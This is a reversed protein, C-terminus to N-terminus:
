TTAHNQGIPLDCQGAIQALHARAADFDYNAISERLARLGDSDARGAMASAFEEVADAADGDSDDILSALRSVAASAKGADFDADPNTTEATEALGNRINTVVPALVSHLEAIGEGASTNERIAKELKAAASHVRGIGINGAVGKLTHALREAGERDGNRLAQDIKVEADAHKAAFQELLSRYLRRNGAVRKLGDAIDIGEIEPISPQSSATVAQSTVPAAEPTKAWRAIAAFLANPDIPKTIHDNMGAQLCREREEVLAHATMAVIPLEAFRPDARLLRTATLGDMEPMQLDMLVIDFPPPMPGEQLLKVAIGGHSAVTVVAGASSLLETAVQQNMDNDEVLLIRVGRAQNEASESVHHSGDGADIQPAGFQEMLSDYLMSASVPKTLYADVGIQAAQTRIEERGFATVMVIHPRHKLGADRRIVASTQLGDMGPMHWDMLVLQYPDQSDASMLAQLAEQGSSM